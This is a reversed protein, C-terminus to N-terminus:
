KNAHGGGKAPAGATDPPIVYTKLSFTASVLQTGAPTREAPRVDTVDPRVIRPFSAVRTLFEGVSQFDGKVQMQWDQDLYYAASDAKSPAAPVVHQLELGLNQSERAISEYIAPIESRSPVLEQLAAFVKESKLLEGRLEDLNGTQTRAVRNQYELQAVQDEMDNLRSTKPSYVYMWFLVFAILVALIGLFRKQDRPDQPLLAM